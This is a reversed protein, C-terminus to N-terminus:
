TSHYIISVNWDEHKDVGNFYFPKGNILFKDRTVKVERIGVAERYSDVVGEEDTM